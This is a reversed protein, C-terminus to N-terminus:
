GLQSPVHSVMVLLEAPARPGTQSRYSASLGYAHQMPAHKAFLRLELGVGGGGANAAAACCCCAHKVLLMVAAVELSRALCGYRGSFVPVLQGAFVHYAVPTSLQHQLPQGAQIAM